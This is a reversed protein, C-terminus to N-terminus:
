GEGNLRAQLAAGRGPVGLLTALDALSYDDPLTVVIGGIVQLNMWDGSQLDLVISESPAGTVDAFGLAQVQEALAEHSVYLPTDANLSIANGNVDTLMVPYAPEAEWTMSPHIQRAIEMMARGTRTSLGLLYATDMVIINGNKVAPTANVGQTELITELGGSAEINGETLLLWDPFASLIIEASLPEYGVVNAYDAANIAGAGEIMADAPTGDGVALQLGRGRMYLHFVSPTESVNATATKVWDIEMEVRGALRLGEDPVGLARAVMEIKQRPLDLGGFESDPVIVVPIGLTRLQEIVDLPACAETCLFLDPDLEVIPELSLNRGFGIDTLTELLDAPYTSSSDVGVLRQDFGLAYVIETVDAIGSVIRQPDNVTVETGTADTLTASPTQARLPASLLIISTLLIAIIFTRM